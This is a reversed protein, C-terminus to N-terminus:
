GTKFMASVAAQHDEPSVERLHQAINWRHGYPDTIQGHLDGWFMEALPQKVSAGGAVARDWVPRADEFKIELAVATGGIGLPSLIGWEPFEDAIMFQCDGVRLEIHMMRGDPLQLRHGHEAAHFVSTYWDAAESANRVVLHATISHLSQM